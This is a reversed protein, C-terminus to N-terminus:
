DPLVIASLRVQAESAGKGDEQCFHHFCIAVDDSTFETPKQVLKKIHEKFSDASYQPQTSKSTSM